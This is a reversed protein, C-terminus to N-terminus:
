PTGPAMLGNMTNPSLGVPRLRFAQAVLSFRPAWNRTRKCSHLLGGTGLTALPEQSLGHSKGVVLSITCVNVSHTFLDADFHSIQLLLLSAEQCRLLSEILETVAAKVAVSDIRAGTQVGEFVQRVTSLCQVRVSQATPLEARLARLTAERKPPLTYNEVQSPALPQEETPSPSSPAVDKGRTPDIAVEHVGLQKLLTIDETRQILRRHFFFPTQWWSRDMGVLYMGPQLQDITIRKEM